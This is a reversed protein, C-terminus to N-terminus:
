RQANLPPLPDLEIVLQKQEGRGIRLVPRSSTSEDTYVWGRYGKSMVVILLDSDSPVAVRFQGRLITASGFLDGTDIATYQIDAKDIKRGTTKDIVTGVLVGGRDHQRITVNSWPLEATVSVDQGPSQNDISYGDAENIAFVQYTGYPLHDVTFRGEDDTPVLCNTHTNSGRRVSTCVKAGNALQGDETLVIGAIGGQMPQSTNQAICRSFVACLILTFLFFSRPM